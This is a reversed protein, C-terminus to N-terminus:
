KGLKWIIANRGSPLRERLGSDVIAGVAVLESRRTRLGSESARPAGKLNRYRELISVDTAPRKLCKLLATQTKTLQDPDISGAAEFSTTPDTKRAHPM